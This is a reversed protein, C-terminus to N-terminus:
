KIKVVCQMEYEGAKDDISYEIDPHREAWEYFAQGEGFTTADVLEGNEVQHWDGFYLLTGSQLLPTIFDLVEVASTYIDVDIHVFILNDISAQLEPTLTDKFWGGIIEFREDPLTVGLYGLRREVLSRSFNYEGREYKWGGSPLKIKRVTDPEEPLGQFSDFGILKCNWGKVIKSGIFYTSKGAGVGFELMTGGDPFVTKLEELMDSFYM